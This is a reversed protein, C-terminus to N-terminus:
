VTFAFDQSNLNTPLVVTFTTGEGLASYFSISGKSSEVCKNVLSLGLGYGDIPGVNKARYFSEFLHKQDEEPIGIGNDKIVFIAEHNENLSLNFDIVSDKPSYKVANSLLNSLILGILNEDVKTNYEYSESSFMIIHSGNSNFEITEALSSCYSPLDIPEPNPIFQGSEIKGIILVNEMLKTMKLVTNQIRDFHKNKEEQTLKESYRRLLDNSLTITTLPTRFEHSIMSIFTTKLKNLEQQKKTNTEILQHSDFQYTIDFAMLVIMEESEFTMYDGSLNMHKKEGNPTNFISKYNYIKGKEFLENYFLDEQSQGWVGIEALTHEIIKEKTLDLFKSVRYNINLIKKTEADLYIIGIPSLNFMRELRTRAKLLELDQVYEDTIDRIVNLLYIVNNSETDLIPIRTMSLVKNKMLGNEIWVDSYTNVSLAKTRVVKSDEIFLENAKSENYVVQVDKGIINTKEINHTLEYHKNVFVYKLDPVSKVTISLPISDFILHLFDSHEFFTSDSVNKQKQEFGNNYKFDLLIESLSDFDTVSWAGLRIYLASSVKSFNESVVIYLSQLNNLDQSQLKEKIIFNEDIIILDFTDKKFNVESSTYIEIGNLFIEKLKNSVFNNFHELHSLSLIKYNKNM